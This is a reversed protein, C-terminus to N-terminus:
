THVFGDQCTLIPNFSKWFMLAEHMRGVYIGEMSGVKAVMVLLPFWCRDIQQTYALIPQPHFM